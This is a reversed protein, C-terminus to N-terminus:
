GKIDPDMHAKKIQLFSIEIEVKEVELVIHEKAVTLLKGRLRKTDSINSGLLKKQEPTMRQLFSIGILEGISDEFHKREKLARFVGPSSVELVFDDPIWGESEVAPNFARDIKICDEIVATKTNKDM